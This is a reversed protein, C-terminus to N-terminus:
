CDVGGFCLFVEDDRSYEPSVFSRSYRWQYGEFPRLLYVNSGIEPDAVLGASLLDLEVNGPVSAQITEYEIGQMQEPSVVPTRKQEWFDLTWTGNLSIGEATVPFVNIGFLIVSCVLSFATRKM